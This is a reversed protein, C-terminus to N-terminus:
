VAPTKKQTLILIVAVGMALKNEIWIGVFTGSAFGGAFAIYYIYNNLNKMIQTIAFLWILIEFFSVIAALHKFGRSIFIIRMTGLSVDLIRASFILVAAILLPTYELSM